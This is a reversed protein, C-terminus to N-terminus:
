CWCKVPIRSPTLLNQQGIFDAFSLKSAKMKQQFVVAANIADILRAGPTPLAINDM